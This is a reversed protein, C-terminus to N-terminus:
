RTLIMTKTETTKGAELKYYYAGSAQPIGRSNQGGWITEHWGPSLVEDVLRTILRGAVDYVALSVHSDGPLFYRITTSPNFPNPYNQGLIVKGEPVSMFDSRFLLTRSQHSVLFVDYQYRISRMATLDLCRVTLGDQIIAEGPMTFVSGDAGNRREVEFRDGEDLTSLTWRILIGDDVPEAIHSQLLTAVTNESSVWVDSLHDTTGASFPIWIWEDNDEWYYTHIITGDDGVGWIDGASSGHIARIDPGDPTTMETLEFTNENYHYVSGNSRCLYLDSNSTGWLCNFYYPALGCPDGACDFDVSGMHGVNTNWEIIHAYPYNSTAYVFGDGLGHFPGYSEYTAETICTEVDLPDLYYLRVEDGVYPHGQIVRTTVFFWGNESAWGKNIIGTGFTAVPDWSFGDFHFVVCYRNDPGWYWDFDDPTVTGFAFIDDSGYGMVDYIRLNDILDPTFNGTVDIEEWGSGNFHLLYSEGPAIYVDNSAAGWVSYYGTCSPADTVLDFTTGTNRLISKTGTDPDVGLVWVDAQAISTWCTLVFGLIVVATWFSRRSGM